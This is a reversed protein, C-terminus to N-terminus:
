LCPQSSLVAHSRLRCVWALLSHAQPEPKLLGAPRLSRLLSSSCLYSSAKAGPVEGLAGDVGGWGGGNFVASGEFDLQLGAVMEGATHESPVRAALERTGGYSVSGPPLVKGVAPIHLKSLQVSKGMLHQPSPAGLVAGLCAVACLVAEQLGATTKSGRNLVRFGDGSM